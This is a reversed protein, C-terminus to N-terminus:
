KPLNVQAPVPTVHAHVHDPLHLESWITGKQFCHRAFLEFETPAAITTCLRSTPLYEATAHVVSLMRPGIMKSYQYQKYTSSVSSGLGRWSSSSSTVCTLERQLYTASNLMMRVSYATLKYAQRTAAQTLDPIHSLGSTECTSSM